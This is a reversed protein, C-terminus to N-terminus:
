GGDPATFVETDPHFAVWAFWFVTFSPLEQGEENLIKGSRAARDYEVTLRYGAVEDVVSTRDDPLEDFPYAKFVGDVELGIVVSKPGFRRDTNAVPFWVRRSSAYNRYPDRDYDRSFGTEISLVTTEPHRAHWDKWTTHSIPIVTLRSGKAPGSIAQGLIQSWLSETNRDYMLVDSNFLLGSVGFGGHKGDVAFAIGTGCLPCFSVLIENDVYRDNVIEHHNMIKVPYARALGHRYIGLVRDDGGLFGASGPDTFKPTDLAPIADRTVGGHHIQDVPVLADDLDFGNMTSSTAISPTLAMLMTSAAFTFIGPRM